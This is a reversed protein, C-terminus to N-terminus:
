NNLQWGWRKDFVRSRKFYHYCNKLRLLSQEKSGGKCLRAKTRLDEMAIDLEAAIKDKNKEINDRVSVLNNEAIMATTRNRIEVDLMERM